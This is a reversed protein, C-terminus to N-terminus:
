RQEKIRSQKGVKDRLYFLKARRVDGRRVVDISAIRAHAHPSRVIAAHCANAVPPHDDIFTGRGTLLRADEVRKIPQGIWSTVPASNGPLTRVIEGGAGRRTLVVAPSM